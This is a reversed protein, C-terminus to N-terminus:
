RSMRVFPSLTDYTIIHSLVTITERHDRRGAQAGGHGATLPASVPQLMLYYGQPVYDRFVSISDPALFQCPPGSMCGLYYFSFDQTGSAIIRIKDWSKPPPYRLINSM